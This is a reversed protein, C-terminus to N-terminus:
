GYGMSYGTRPNIYNSVGTLIGTGAGILGGLFASSGSMRASSAADEDGRARSEGGYLTMLSNYEGRGAVQQGLMAVTPADTGAGGGSAAAVAQIRSQVIQSNHRADEATRSAAAREEAAKQDLEQAQFNASNQAAVGSVLSGIGSVVGSILGLIAM